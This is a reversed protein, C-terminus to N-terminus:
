RVLKRVIFHYTIGFLTYSEVYTSTSSIQIAISRGVGDINGEIQAVDESAWIFSDWNASDWYAGGASLVKSLTIGPPAKGSGYDLLVNYTLETGSSGDAEITSKKFQKNYSPSGLHNYVLVITAALPGGDFSTGKDMQYVYGDDSGFFLIESGNSDEGNATCRVPISTGAANQYNIVTFGIIKKGDFTAVIGSGDSFFTRIQNKTKVIISATVSDKKALVLPEIVRSYTSTEFDGFAQVADVSMFGRDDLYRTAGLRQLTWEIGGAEESLTKLDWPIDTTNKGHLAFTRNACLIILAGGVEKKMGKIDDGLGIEAAGGGAWVYPTGTSSNQLSGNQFALQLHYENIVLHHPTDTTNGTIIPVFVSGDWEFAESVGNVGYMRKTKTSGFFNYNEFEYRGGPEMKNATEAADIPIAGAISGTTAEAQFPGSSVAGIIFYGVADTGWTGSQLVVRNITASAGSTTGTIVESEVYAVGAGGDSFNLRSGLSQQVWGTATSKWMLCEDVAANDRFAYINGAYVHVGRVMGSGDAAGVKGILDRQTEIADQAYTADLTPTSAARETSEGDAVATAILGV